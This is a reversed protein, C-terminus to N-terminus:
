SICAHFAAMAATMAAGIRCGSAPLTSASSTLRIDAKYRYQFVRCFDSNGCGVIRPPASDPM